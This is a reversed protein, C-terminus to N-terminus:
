MGRVIKKTITEQTTSIQLQYVGPAFGSLDLTQIGQIGPRAFMVIRGDSSLLTISSINSAGSIKLLGTTPNPYVYVSSAPTQIMGINVVSLSRIASLGEPVFLGDHAALGMEFTVALQGTEGTSPRFLAFHMPEGTEFGDKDATTMDDAYVTVVSNTATGSLTAIGFCQSNENFVGIVDGSMLGEMGEHLVAIQHSSSSSEFTNWPNDPFNRPPLEFSVAMKSNGPFSISGATNTLVFYAGGPLLDGLTNIGYEPWYIGLGAVDKVIEIDTGAFLGVVNVPSNCIVPLLNWGVTLSYIKNSEENGIVPITALNSMKIKYASQSEWTNITNIPGAPYFIGDMTQAIIFDLLVPNFVDGIDNNVPMIYSSLGSWGSALSIEHTPYSVQTVTVDVTPLGGTATVSINGVRTTGSANEGYAVNIIGNGTGSLPLVSFWPVSESVTWGTNSMLNFSTAGAPADVDRNAPLVVLTAGAGAQNVNVVVDPLGTSSVTIQGSRLSISTNEDYSVTLLGDATGSMPLVSFWSVSETITWGTNSAVDFTTNGASAPVNRSPPTAALTAGAQNVTVIIDPVGDGSITLSGSRGSASTNQEATIFVSSNNFGSMPNVVFWPVSETITWFVNSSIDFIAVTLPPDINLVETNVSLQPVFWDLRNFPDNEFSPGSFAGSFDRFTIRGANNSKGVNSAGSWTNAPFVAGTCEIEQTSNMTLLTNASLGERFICYNFAQTPYVQAGSVINIGNPGMFEFITYDAGINCGSQATFLYRNTNARTVVVENGFAGNSVFAGGNNVSLASNLKLQSPAGLQLTGANEINVDGMCTIINGSNGTYLVGPNITLFGNILVNGNLIVENGRTLTVLKGTRSMFNYSSNDAAGTKNIMLNNLNAVSVVSLTTNLGGYLEITGGAPTFVPHQVSLSGVTRITGGNLDESLTYSGSNSVNIGVDKYDLVGGSMTISANAAFAWWSDGNGGYINMQGNTITVNANLDIWQGNDQHLNCVASPGNIFYSGFIGNDFLDLVNLTGWVVHIEGQLWAYSQCNVTQGDFLQLDGTPKNLELNNFNETSSEQGWDGNFIVKGTGEVFADVGVNNNWNGGIGITKNNSNLIGANINLDGKITLNDYVLFSSGPKNLVVDNLYNGNVVQVYNGSSTNIFEVTGGSPQFTGSFSAALTRGFRITGGSIQDNFTSSINVVRKTFEVIGNTLLLTGSLSLLGTSTENTFTGEGVNLVGSSPFIFDAHVTTTSGPGLILSGALTLSGNSLYDSGNAFNLGSSSQINSNGAVILDIGSFIWSAGSQLTFNGAVSVPYLTRENDLTTKSLPVGVLNGFEADADAPYYLNRVYATNGTGLKANTGDNFYWTNAYFVGNTVDDNSGLDWVINNATLNDTASIMKLTAGYIYVSNSVNVTRANLDFTGGELSLNGNITVPSSYAFVTNSRTEKISNGEKDFPLIPIYGSDDAGKLIRLNLISCGTGTRLDADATGYMEIWGGTPTFDSRQNEFKGVTRIIGGTINETFSYTGSNYVRIGRNKFDLVGDSMTLSANASYPWDSDVSGGYVNFTGGYIHIDANIDIYADNTLNITGGPNLWFGGFIGNDYLDLATFTGAIIDIGGSTWDYQNCTVTRFSNSVRLAAGMKAELINFTESSYVYQHAPGDFVVRSTGENFATLGASNTWNGGVYMTRDELNFTGSEITVDGNVDLISSLTNNVFVNGTQSFTLNNFYDGANMKINQATGDLVCTGYNCSFSGNSNIDGKIVLNYDSYCEFIAGPHVYLYNNVVLPQTSWNSLGVLAGGSKYSGLNYFSCSASFNRIYTETTGLFLATGNNLQVNAGSNFTWYGYVRFVSLATFGATSGSNWTVDGMVNLQGSANDMSLKGSIALNGNVNIAWGKVLLEGSEITLNNCEEDYYNINVPQYGASTIVADEDTRPIHGLSWNQINHWYSNFAGTWVNPVQTTLNLTYDEVEGYTTVGCPSVTGTYTIRVRMVCEGLSQGEPPSISATFPGNGPTGTVTISEGADSFDGDRNWDVWIGCQDSPYPNGNTITVPLLGNVPMNASHSLTYDGYGICSTNNNITGAQVRSIYEDCGGSAYCYSSFSFAAVRTRWSAGGNSYENTYWFRVDDSPDVNMCSYDGWRNWGTQSNAGNFITEEAMTMTNLADGAKRGTFRISPYVTTSSVSYGLAIDGFGNMAISGMWRSQADPSYTSQQQIFWSAGTKRLEYWRVGAHDTNDVDVSHCCVITQHTGFNRYQARFMLVEPVADLEQATGPQKINNWDPGFNSDFATVNLQQIRNFTSLDTNTWNVALQYIWLQDTGSWADDNITVFLGPSGSPAFTGDNDLPMISHFGVNPRNTNTFTVLKPSAGGSLMVSREFVGVDKGGNTNSAYYYGDRWVGYKAYDPKTAWDYVWRYWSGTPDGTQSVAIYIKYPSSSKFVSVFWRDAQEDYIVVPDTISSIAIGSWITALDAPGFLSTGNKNWIQFSVNVVQFYHDPGVDGQTDPPIVGNRNNVGEFNITPGDIADWTGMEKQRAEDEGKPLANAANPYSRIGLTPNRVLTDKQFPPNITMDRLPPSVDFYEPLSEKPVSTQSLAIGSFLLGALLLTFKEKM